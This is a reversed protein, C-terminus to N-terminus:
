FGFRELNPDNMCILIVTFPHSIFDNGTHICILLLQGATHACVTQSQHILRIGSDNVVIDHSVFEITYVTDNRHLLSDFFQFLFHSCILSGNDVLVAFICFISLFTTGSILFFFRYM